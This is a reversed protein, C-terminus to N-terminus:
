PRSADGLLGAGGAPALPDVTVATTAPVVVARPAITPVRVTPDDNHLVLAALTVSATFFAAAFALFLLARLRPTTM